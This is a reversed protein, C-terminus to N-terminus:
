QMRNEELAIGESSAEFCGEAAACLSWERCIQRGVVFMANIKEFWLLFVVELTISSRAGV